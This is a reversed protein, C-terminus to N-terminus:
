QRSGATRPPLTTLIATCPTTPTTEEAELDVRREILAIIRERDHATFVDKARIAQILDVAETPGLKPGTKLNRLLADATQASYRTHAPTGKPMDSMGFLIQLYQIRGEVVKFTPSRETM